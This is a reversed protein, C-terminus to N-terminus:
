FRIKVKKEFHRYIDLEEFLRKHDQQKCKLWITAERMSSNFLNPCVNMRYKCSNHKLKIFVVNTHTMNKVQQFNSQLTALLETRVIVHWTRFKM